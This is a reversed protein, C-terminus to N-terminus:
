YWEANYAECFWRCENGFMYEIPSMQFVRKDCGVAHLEKGIQRAVVVVLRDYFM